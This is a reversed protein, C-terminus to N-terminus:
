FNKKASVIGGKNFLNLAQALQPDAAGTPTAGGGQNIVPFNSQSVNPLPVRSQETQQEIADFYNQLGNKVETAEAEPIVGLTVLRGLMQNYVSQMRKPTNTGEVVEKVSTKFALQQFKPDLMVKGVYKPAILVGLAPLIGGAAAAGGVAVNAPSFLGGGFQLLQGAAGAQKLQILVGGPVSSIDSIRGQAFGLTTKLDDIKKIDAADPFLVKLTEMNNNIAKTFKNIDYFEGFQEQPSISKSLMNQLYHGRLSDKLTKAEATTISSGIAEKFAPNNTLQPLAEIDNLVRQLLLTKEGDTITKFVQGLDATERAGKALLAVTTGRKFVDMGQEYFEKANQLADAAKPNLNSRRLFEPSLMDDMTKIAFNIDKLDDGGVGGTKLIQRQQALDSRIKSLQKYSVLGGSEKRFKAIDRELGDMFPKIPNNRGSDLGQRINANIIDVTEELSNKTGVKEFVSLTPKTSAAGLLDDVKQYMADSATRFLQDANNFMNMFMTGVEAKNRALNGETLEQVTDYAVRDGIDKLARYRSAYGAGGLISKSIITEAINIGQNNTKFAPTLGHQAELASRKLTDFDEKPLNSRKMYEKISKDSPVLGKVAEIQEKVGLKSLSQATEKGYLIEYSKNKLQQEAIDAGKIVEAFQRPKAAGLIKSIIPAAKIALPAGIAEGLAGEGAARAVEKVVNESPDFTESVLAGGAGGAASGASAKALAKLFPLSRMGVNRAIGPLTFGGAAISGVISGAVETVIRGFNPSESYETAAKDAVSDGVQDNILTQLAKGIEESEQATPTEGEIEVVGLGQVNIKGM